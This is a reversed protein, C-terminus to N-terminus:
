WEVILESRGTQLPRQTLISVKDSFLAAYETRGFVRLNESDFSEFQSESEIVMPDSTSIKQDVMKLQYVANLKKIQDIPIVLRESVLADLESNLRDLETSKLTYSSMKSSHSWALYYDACFLSVIMGVSALLATVILRQERLKTEQQIELRLRIPEDPLEWTEVDLKVEHSMHLQHGPLGAIEGGAFRGTTGVYADDDEHDNVQLFYGKSSTSADCIVNVRSSFDVKDNHLVLQWMGYVPLNPHNKRVALIEPEAVALCKVRADNTRVQASTEYGHFSAKQISSGAFDPVLIVDEGGINIVKRVPVM